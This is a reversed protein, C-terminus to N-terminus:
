FSFDTNTSLIFRRPKVPESQVQKTPKICIWIPLDTEVFGEDLAGMESQM